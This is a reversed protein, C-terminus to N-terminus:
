LRNQDVIRALVISSSGLSIVDEVDELKLVIEELVECPLDM